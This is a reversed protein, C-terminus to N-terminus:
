PVAVEVRTGRSPASNLNLIGGLSEAREKMSLLGFGRSPSVGDPDFGCGDDEVVLRIGGERQLSVTVMRSEGHKAANTM